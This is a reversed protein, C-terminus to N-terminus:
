DLADNDDFGRAARMGGLIAAGFIAILIGNVVMDIM